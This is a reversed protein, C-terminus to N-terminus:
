IFLSDVILLALFCGREAISSHLIYEAPSHAAGGIPGLGDLVAKGQAAAFSADSAGGTTVADMKIGLDNALALARDRLKLVPATKEMAPIVSGGELQMTFHIGEPVNQEIIKKVATLMTDLDAETYARLDIRLKAYDPVVTPTRGGSIVGVNLTGGKLLHNLQHLAPIREALALIANRGKSPEVGAHASKGYAEITYWRIAKRGCVIDGNLRAAELCLVADAANAQERILPVSNRVGAEEDSVILFSISDYQDYGALHLAEVAYIGLLLGGKMDESGPAIIKDGEIKLPRTAATGSAYVTDMHGLLLVKGKGSGTWSALLQDARREQSYRRIRAKSGVLRNELWACTASLGSLDDSGSDIATLATLDTLYNQIRQNFYENIQEKIEM